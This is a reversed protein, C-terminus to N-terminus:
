LIVVEKPTHKKPNEIILRGGGRIEDVVFSLLVLARRIVQAKTQDPARLEELRQDVEPSFDVTYRPM